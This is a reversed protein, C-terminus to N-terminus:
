AVGSICAHQPNCPVCISQASRESIFSASSASDLMARAEVLVHYPMFLLSSKIGMAAHSPIPTTTPPSQANTPNEKVEIHFLTHHPKQCKKWRHLLGCDKAFHGPQLCNLCLGNSKLTSVMKDHPLANFKTCIYLLHKDSKCFVCNGSATEVSAVFSAVPRSSNM